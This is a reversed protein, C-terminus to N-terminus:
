DGKRVVGYILVPWFLWLALVTILMAVRAGVYSGSLALKNLTESSAVRLRKRVRGTCLDLVVIVVIGLGFYIGLGIGM